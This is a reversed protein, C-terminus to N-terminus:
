DQGRLPPHLTRSNLQSIPQMNLRISDKAIQRFFRRHQGGCVSAAPKQRKKRTAAIHLEKFSTRQGAPATSPLAIKAHVLSELETSNTLNIM